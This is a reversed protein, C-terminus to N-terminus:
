NKSNFTEKVLVKERAGVMVSVLFEKM